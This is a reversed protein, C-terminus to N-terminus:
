KLMLLLLSLAYCRVYLINWICHKKFSPLIVLSRNQLSSFEQVNDMTQYEVYCLVKSILHKRGWTFPHSASCRNPGNSLVLRLYVMASHVAITQLCLSLLRSCFLHSFQSTYNYHELSSNQHHETQFEAPGGTIGVTRWPKGQDRFIIGHCYQPYAMVTSHNPWSM